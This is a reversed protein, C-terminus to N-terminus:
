INGRSAGLSAGGRGARLGRRRAGGTAEAKTKAYGGVVWDPSFRQVESIVRLHDKEPIAHVLQRVGAAARQGAPVAEPNKLHRGNVAHM